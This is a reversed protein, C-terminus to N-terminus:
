PRGGQAPARAQTPPGGDGPPRGEGSPGGEGLARGEGAREEGRPGGEGLPRGEGPRRRPPRAAGCPCDPDASWSRRAIEARHLDLELSAGLAPPAPGKGDLALVAQAAGLAATAAVVEPGAAGSRGTLQAAIAPWAPDRAARAREVCGLCPSRGLLVLPGVVGAGDRVAVALHATGDVALVRLVEPDPAVADTLVVLDPRPSSRAGAPPGGVRELAAAAAESRPVGVDEELYGGGVDGSEVHGAALVRVAGVGARVLAIAVGVALPGDGRVVVASRARREGLRQVASADVVAGREVLGALLDEAYGPPAGREVAAAAWEVASTPAVLRDVLPLVVPPIGEVLVSGDPDLGFQREGPGRALLARHPALVVTSPVGRRGDAFVGPGLAPQTTRPLTPLQHDRM